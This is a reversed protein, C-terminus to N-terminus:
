VRVAADFGPPFKDFNLREAGSEGPLTRTLFVALRDRPECFLFASSAAFASIYFTVNVGSLTTTVVFNDNRLFLTRRYRLTPILIKLTANIAM